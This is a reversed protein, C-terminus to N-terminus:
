GSGNTRPRARVFEAKTALASLLLRSLRQCTGVLVRHRPFTKRGEASITGGASMVPWHGRKPTFRVDSDCRLINAKSVFGANGRRVGWGKWLLPVWQYSLAVPPAMLR